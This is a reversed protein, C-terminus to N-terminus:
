AVEQKARVKAWTAARTEMVSSWLKMSAPPREVPSQQESSVQFVVIVTVSNASM